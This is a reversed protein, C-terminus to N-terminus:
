QPCDVSTNQGHRRLRPGRPDLQADDARERERVAERTARTTAAKLRDYYEDDDSAFGAEVARAPWDDPESATGDRVRAATAATADDGMADGDSAGTPPTEFWGDGGDSAPNADPDADTDTM